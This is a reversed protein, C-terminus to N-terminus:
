DKGQGDLDLDRKLRLESEQGKSEAESGRAEKGGRLFCAAGAQRPGECM